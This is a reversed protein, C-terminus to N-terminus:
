ALVLDVRQTTNKAREDGTLFWRHRGGIRRRQALGRRRLAATHKHVTADAFGSLDILKSVLLPGHEQLIRVVGHCKSDAKLGALYDDLSINPVVNATFLRWTQVRRGDKKAGDGREVLNEDELIVMLSGVYNATFGLKTALDYVIMEQGDALMDLILKKKDSHSLESEVTPESRIGRRDNDLFLSIWRDADLEDTPMWVPEGSISFALSRTDEIVYPQAHKYAPIVSLLSTNKHNSLKRESGFRSFLRL